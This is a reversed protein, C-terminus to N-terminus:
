PRAVTAALGFDFAGPAVGGGALSAAINNLSALQESSIRFIDELTADMSKQTALQEAQAARAEESAARVRAETADVLEQLLAASDARGRAGEATSGFAERQLDDIQRVVRTLADLQSGDGGRVLGALRDREGGLTTLQDRVSGGARDGFRFEDLLARASGTAKDLTERILASRQDANLKEIEILEFGYERAVDVRARAQREFDRFAAIFPNGQAELLQELDRVKLAEAVAQNVNGAYRQLAAQVRPTTAIAGSSLANAVAAAVAEEAEDFRQSGAAKFDGGGPNFFFQKGSFGISGLNLGARVDAGLAQAVQALADNVGSALSNGAKLSQNGGRSNFVSGSAGTATTQLAVDAFPNKQKVFGALSGVLAGLPGAALFGIVAGRVAGNTNFDKIGFANALGAVTQGVGAAGALGGLAKSFTGGSGFAKTFLDDLGQVLPRFADRSVRSFEQFFTDGEGPRARNLLDAIGGARQLTRNLGQGISGGIVVSLDVVSEAFGRALDNAIDGSVGRLGAGVAEGLDALEAESIGAAQFAGEVIRVPGGDRRASPAIMAPAADRRFVAAAQASIVGRAEARAIDDLNKKYQLQAALLPNFAEALRGYEERAERAAAAAERKRSNIQEQIIERGQQGANVEDIFAMLDDVEDNRRARAVARGRARTYDGALDTGTGGFLGAIGGTASDVAGLGAAVVDRFNPLKAQVAAIARDFGVVLPDFVRGLSTSLGAFVAGVERAFSLSGDKAVRAGQETEFLKGAFPSLAVLATTLAIGWPGGLFAGVGRAAGGMGSLAFAVQGAQQAFITAPAVGMSLGMTVDGIQQGLNTLSARAQGASQAVRNLGAAALAHQRTALAEETRAAVLAERLRALEAADAGAANAHEKLAAAAAKSAAQAEVMAQKTSGIDGALKRLEASAQRGDASVSAQVRLDTM